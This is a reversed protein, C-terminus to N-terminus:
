ADDDEEDFEPGDTWDRYELEMGKIQEIVPAFSENSDNLSVLTDMQNKSLGFLKLGNDSLEEGEAIGRTKTTYIPSSSFPIPDHLRFGGGQTEILVGLCCYGPTGKLKSKCHLYEGSELDEIWRAKAEPTM